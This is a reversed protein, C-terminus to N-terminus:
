SCGQHGQAQLSGDSLSQQPPPPIAGASKDKLTRHHYPGLSVMEPIYAEAKANMISKPLRM